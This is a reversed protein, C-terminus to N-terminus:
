RLGRDMKRQMWQAVEGEALEGKHKRRGPPASMLGVNFEQPIFHDRGPVTIKVHYGAWEFERLGRFQWQTWSGDARQFPHVAHFIKQKHGSETLTVDRDQFFYPVRQPEIGFVASVDGKTVRVRCTAFNTQEIEKTANCFLHSLHVQATLGYQKAWQQYGYPIRWDHEPRIQGDSTERTKLVRIVSGDESIWLPFTQPVGWKMVKRSKPHNPRDWYCTMLYYHGPRTVRQTHWPVNEVGVFYLFKPTWLHGQLETNEQEEHLPDIGHCICGWTPWHEKFWPTLNIDHKYEELEEGKFKKLPRFKDRAGTAVYPVLTAGIVKYFSYAGPDHKQMRNIYVWYLDLQKLITDRFNFTGYFENREFLVDPGGDGEKWEDAIIRENPDLFPVDQDPQPEAQIITQPDRTYKLPEPGGPRVWEDHKLREKEYKRRMADRQRRLHRNLEPDPPEVIPEIPPLKGIAEGWAENACEPEYPEAPEDPEAPNVGNFAAPPQPEPQPPPTTPREEPAPAPPKPVRKDGNEDDEDDPEQGNGNGGGAGEIRIEVKAGESPIEVVHTITAGHPWASDDPPNRGFLSLVYRHVRRFWRLM